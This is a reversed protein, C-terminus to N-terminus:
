NIGRLLKESCIEKSGWISLGPNCGTWMEHRESWQMVVSMIHFCVLCSLYVIFGRTTLKTEAFIFYFNPKATYHSRSGKKLSIRKKANKKHKWMIDTTICYDSRSSIQVPHVRDITIQLDFIIKQAFTHIIDKYVNKSFFM